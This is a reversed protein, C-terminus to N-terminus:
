TGYTVKLTMVNGEITVAVDFTMEPTSASNKPTTAAHLPHPSNGTAM